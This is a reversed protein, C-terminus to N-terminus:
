AFALRAATTTRSMRASTDTEPHGTAREGDFDILWHYGITRWGRDPMDQRRIEALKASLPDNGMWEPRTTSCYLIIERVPYRATGELIM